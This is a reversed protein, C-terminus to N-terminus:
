GFYDQLAQRTARNVAFDEARGGQALTIGGCIDVGAIGYTSRIADLKDLLDPLSAKGQDWDTRAYEPSLYDLDISVLPNSRRVEDVWSGCSLLGAGFAGPQDDPHNDFLFLRAPRELRRLWLASLYHYDGSDIWHLANLPLKAVAEQLLAEAEPDCYCATGELQRFDVETAGEPHWNEDSFLSSMHMLVCNMTKLLLLFM